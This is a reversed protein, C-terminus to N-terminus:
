NKKEDLLQNHLKYLYTKTNEVYMKLFHIVQIKNREGLIIKTILIEVFNEILKASIQECTKEGRKVNTVRYYEYPINFETDYKAVYKHLSKFTYGCILKNNFASSTKIVNQKKKIKTKSIEKITNEYLEMEVIAPVGGPIIVEEPNTGKICYKYEGIYTKNDLIHDIVGHKITTGDKRRYGEDYLIKVITPSKYGESLLIFIRKVAKAEIPNIVLKGSTKDRDYGFPPKNNWIAHHANYRLGRVVERKLNEIYYQSLSMLIWNSLKGSPNNEDSDGNACKLECDVDKMIQLYKVFDKMSRSFRDRTYVVVFDIGGQSIDQIMQLFQLRADASQGSIAYDSYHKILEIGNQSCYEEIANKQVEISTESQSASSYRSYGVAKKM